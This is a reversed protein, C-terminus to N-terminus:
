YGVTYKVPYNSIKTNLRIDTNTSEEDEANTSSDNAKVRENKITM